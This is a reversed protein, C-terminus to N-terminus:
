HLRNARVNQIHANPSFFYMRGVRDVLISNFENPAYRIQNNHRKHNNEESWENRDYIDTQGNYMLQKMKTPNFMGYM